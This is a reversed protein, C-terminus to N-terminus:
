NRWLKWSVRTGCFKSGSREKQSHVREIWIREGMPDEQKADRNVKEWKIDKLDGYWPIKVQSIVCGSSSKSTHFLSCTLFDWRLQRVELYYSGFGQCDAVMTSPQFRCMIL